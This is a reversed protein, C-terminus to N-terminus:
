KKSLDDEHTNSPNLDNQAAKQQAKQRAKQRTKQRAKLRAAALQASELAALQRERERKTAKLGALRQEYDDAGEDLSEILVNQFLIDDELDERVSHSKTNTPPKPSTITDALQAKQQATQQAKQRRAESSMTMSLVYAQNEEFGKLTHVNGHKGLEHTENGVHRDPTATVVGPSDDLASLPSGIPKLRMPGMSDSTRFPQDISAIDSASFYPGPEGPPKRPMPHFVHRKVRSERSLIHIRKFGSIDFDDTERRRKPKAPRPGFTPKFSVMGFTPKDLWPKSAPPTPKPDVEEIEVIRRFCLGCMDSYPTLKSAVPLVCAFM